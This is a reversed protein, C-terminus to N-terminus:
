PKPNTAPEIKESEPAPAKLVRAEHQGLGLVRLGLSGREAKHTTRQQSEAHHLSRGAM